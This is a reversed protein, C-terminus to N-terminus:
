SHKELFYLKARTLFSHLSMMIAVIAGGTGDLFGLKFIYNLIFKGAPYCIIQFLNARVGQSYFYEANLTSYRNIDELFGSITPHPYHLIPNNLKGASGQIDWTEHVPRSWRGANKRALRIFKIGGTEGHNLERGFFIDSRKLFYGVFLNNKLSVAQKIESILKDPVIEDSDVFLVWDGRAQDLGFNRQAAFDNDLRHQIVNQTYKRAIERTSDTSDDDIVIIEDCWSLHKLTEPIIIEDNHTLVVASIM